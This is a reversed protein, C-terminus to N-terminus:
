LEHGFHGDHRNRRRINDCLYAGWRQRGQNFFYGQSQAIRLITEPGFRHALRM